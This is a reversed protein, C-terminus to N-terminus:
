IKIPSSDMPPKMSNCVRSTLPSSSSMSASYCPLAEVGYEEGGDAKPLTENQMEGESWGEGELPSPASMGEGKLPPGPLPVHSQSM